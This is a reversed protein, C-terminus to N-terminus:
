EATPPVWNPDRMLFSPPQLLGLAFGFVLSIVVILVIAGLLGLIMRDTLFRRARGSLGLYGSISVRPKPKGEDAGPPLLEPAVFRLRCSRCRYPALHRLRLFMGERLGRRQSRRVNPSQCDPCTISLPADDDVAVAQSTETM